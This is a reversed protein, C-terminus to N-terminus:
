PMLLVALQTTGPKKVKVSTVAIGRFEPPTRPIIRTRLLRRKMGGPLRIHRNIRRPRQHRYNLNFIIARSRICRKTCSPHQPSDTVGVSNEILPHFFWSKFGRVSFGGIKERYGLPRASVRGGAVMGVILTLRSFDNGVDM